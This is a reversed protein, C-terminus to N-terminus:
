DELQFHPGDVLTKWSGGWTIKFGLETAARQMAENIKVYLAFDWSPKGDKYAMLDVAKGKLHYSNMTTSSGKAVMEKQREITRVGEIVAFDVESYLLARSVILQLPTAVGTLNGLSRKSFKFL